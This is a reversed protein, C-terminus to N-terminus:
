VANSVPSNVFIVTWFLSFINNFVYFLFNSYAIKLKAWFYIILSTLLDM